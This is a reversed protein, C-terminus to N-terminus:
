VANKMPAAAHDEHEVNAARLRRTFVRFVGFAVAPDEGILDRFDDRKIKLLLADEAARASASRPEDDLIAMEGICDREGLTALVVNDEPRGKLAQLAGRVIMFMDEGPEGEYFLIDGRKIEKEEVIEAIARLEEGSMGAFIPVTKLFLIKEMTLMADAEPATKKNLAAHATEAVFPDSDAALAELLAAGGPADASLGLAYATCGRIWPSADRAFRELLADPGPADKGIVDRCAAMTDEPSREEFLPTIQRTIDKQGINELTELALPVLSKDPANLKAWISRVTTQDLLLGLAQFVRDLGQTAQESIAGPFIEPASKTQFLAAAYRLTYVARIEQAIFDTVHKRVDAADGGELHAAALAQLAAGRLVPHAEDKLAALLTDRADGGHHKGILLLCRRRVDLDAHEAAAKQLAPLTKKGLDALGKQADHALRPYSLAGILADTARPDKCKALARVARARIEPEPDELLDMLTPTFHRAKIHRLIDVAAARTKTKKSEIMKKLLDGALLVGDLGGAQILSTVAQARVKRKPDELMPRLLELADDGALRAVARIAACRVAPGDDGLLAIFQTLSDKDKLAALTDVTAAQIGNSKHRLLPRVDSIADRAKIDAIMELAFQIMDENDSKLVGRLVDLNRQDGLKSLHKLSEARLSASPSTLNDTLAKVYDANARLSAYIWVAAFVFSILCTLFEPDGRLATSIPALFQVSVILLVGALGMSVPKVYGEVFARARGRREPPIPNYLMQYSSDQLTYLLVHDGFKAFSASLFALKATMFATAGGMFLPHVAIMRGVGFRSILRTTFGLQVVLCLFGAAARFVGLFGTLEDKDTYKAAVAKSFEYDVVTFVIWMALNILVLTKLLRVGKIYDLGAKFEQWQSIKKPPALSVPRVPGSAKSKGYKASLTLVLFICLGFMASWVLFLNNTGIVAVVPKAGFGALVMGVLGGTGILPFLRKSERADFVDGMFTWFQMLGVLWLIQVIVYTAASFWLMNMMLVVRVAFTIGAYLALSGVLFKTRDMKDVFATYITSVLVVFVANLVFMYPLFKVGVDKLFISDRANRGIVIGTMILLFILWSLFVRGHEGEHINFAKNLFTKM